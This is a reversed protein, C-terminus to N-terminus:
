GQSRSRWQSWRQRLALRGRVRRLVLVGAAALLPWVWWQADQAAAPPEWVRWSLGAWEPAVDVFTTLEYSGPGPLSFIIATTPGHRVVSFGGSAWAGERVGFTDSAQPIFEMQQGELFAFRESAISVDEMYVVVAHGPEAAQIEVHLEVLVRHLTQGDVEVIQYSRGRNEPPREFHAQGEGYSTSTSGNHGLYGVVSTEVVLQGSALAQELVANGLVEAPALARFYATCRAEVPGLTIRNGDVTLSANV